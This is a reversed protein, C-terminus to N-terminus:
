QAVDGRQWCKVDSVNTLRGFLIFMYGFHEVISASLTQV